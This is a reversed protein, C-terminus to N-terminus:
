PKPRCRRRPHTSTGCTVLHRRAIIGDLNLDADAGPTPLPEARLWTGARLLESLLGAMQEPSAAPQERPAVMSDLWFSLRRNTERLNLLLSPM